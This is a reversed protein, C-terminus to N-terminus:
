IGGKEAAIGLATLGVAAGWVLILLIIRTAGLPRFAVTTGIKKDWRTSGTGILDKYAFYMTFLSLLPIGLCLGGAYVSIARSFSQRFNLPMLDPLEIKVGYLAKGLTTGFIALLGAEVPVFALSCVLASGVNNTILKSFISSPLAIEIVLGLAMVVMFLDLQRAFFRRWPHTLPHSSEVDALEDSSAALRHALDFESLDGGPRYQHFPPPPPPAPPLRRKIFKGIAEITIASEWGAM